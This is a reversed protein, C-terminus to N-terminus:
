QAVTFQTSSMEEWIVYNHKMLKCCLNMYALSIFHLGPM